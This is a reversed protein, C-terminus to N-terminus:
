LTWILDVVAEMDSGQLNWIVDGCGGFCRQVIELSGRWLRCSSEVCGESFSGVAEM